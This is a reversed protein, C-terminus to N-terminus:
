AVARPAREDIGGNRTPRSRAAVVIVRVSSANTAAIRLSGLGQAVLQGAVHGELSTRKAAHWSERLDRAVNARHMEALEQHRVRVQDGLLEVRVPMTHHDFSGPGSLLIQCSPTSSNTSRSLRSSARSSAFVTRLSM